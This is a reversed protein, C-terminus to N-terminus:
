FRISCYAEGETGGREGLAPIAKETPERRGDEAPTLERNSCISALKAMDLPM